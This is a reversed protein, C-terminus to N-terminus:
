AVAEANIHQEDKLKAVEKFGAEFLLEHGLLMKNEAKLKEHLKGLDAGSWFREEFERNSKEVQALVKRRSFIIAWSALSAALLLAMVLQVVLTAEAILGWVNMDTSM